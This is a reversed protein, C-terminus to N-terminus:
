PRARRELHAEVAAYVDEGQDAAGLMCMVLDIYQDTILLRSFSARATNMRQARDREAKVDAVRQRTAKTNPAIYHQYSAAGVLHGDERRYFTTGIVIRTKTTREVIMPHWDGCFFRYVKEGAQVKALAKKEDDTM